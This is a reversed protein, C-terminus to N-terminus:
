AVTRSPAEEWHKMAAVTVWGVESGVRTVM